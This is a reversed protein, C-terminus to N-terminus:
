KGLDEIEIAEIRVSTGGYDGLMIQCGPETVQFTLEKHGSEGPKADWSLWQIKLGPDSGDNSKSPVRVHHNMRAEEKADKVNYNYSVRYCHGPM